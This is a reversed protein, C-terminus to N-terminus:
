KIEVMWVGDTDIAKLRSARWAKDEHNWTMLVDDHLLAPDGGFSRLHLFETFARHALGPAAQNVVQIAIGRGWGDKLHTADPSLCAQWPGLPGGKVYLDRLGRPLLPPESHHVLADMPRAITITGTADIPTAFVANPGMYLDLATRLSDFAVMTKTKRANEMLVGAGAFIMTALTVIIAVVVMVEVLTFASRAHGRM